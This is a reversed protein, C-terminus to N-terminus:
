CRLGAEMLHLYSVLLASSNAACMSRIKQEYLGNGNRRRPRPADVTFNKLSARFKREIERRTRDQTIWERLPVDFAELNVQDDADLDEEEDEIGDGYDDGEEVARFAGRRQRRAEDDEEEEMMGLAMGYFGENRTGDRGLRDRRALEAEAARREDMNMINYERNDM